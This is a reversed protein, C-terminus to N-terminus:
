SCRARAMQTWKRNQLAGAELVVVAFRGTHGRRRIWGCAAEAVPQWSKGNDRAAIIFDGDLWEVHRIGPMGQFQEMAADQAAITGASPSPSAPPVALEPARAPAPSPVAHVAASTRPPADAIVKKVGVIIGALVFAGILAYPYLSAATEQPEPTTPASPASPPAGCQPCATAQDSIERDCEHCNILAM